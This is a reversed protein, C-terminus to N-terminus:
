FRRPETFKALLTVISKSLSVLFKGVPVLLLRDLLLFDIALLWPVKVFLVCLTLGIKFDLLGSEDAFCTFERFLCLRFLLSIPVCGLVVRWCFAVWLDSALSLIKM